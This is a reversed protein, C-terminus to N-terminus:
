RSSTRATLAKQLRAAEEDPQGYLREDTIRVTPIGIAALDADRNRDQEFQARGSHTGYTDLEVALRHEPFFIDVEHGAVWTNVHPELRHRQVFKLFDREFKSRSPARKPHTTHQRLDSLAGTLADHSLRNAKDLLTRAPTTVRIGHHETVDAGTLTRSRHIRIGPRRRASRATVEIPANWHDNIGWLTAASGHSLAADPGCALVGRPHRM